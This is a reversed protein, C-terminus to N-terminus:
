ADEIAQSTERKHSRIWEGQRGDHINTSDAASFEGRNTPPAQAPYRASSHEECWRPSQQRRIAGGKNADVLPSRAQKTRREIRRRYSPVRYQHQPACFYCTYGTLFRLFSLNQGVVFRSLSVYPSRLKIQEHHTLAKQVCASSGLSMHLQDSVDAMIRNTIGGARRDLIKHFLLRLHSSSTGGGLNSTALIPM